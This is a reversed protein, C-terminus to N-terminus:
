RPCGAVSSMWGTIRNDYLLMWSAQLARWGIGKVEVGIPAGVPGKDALLKVTMDISFGTQTLLRDGQQLVIDHMFGFDDPAAFSATFHGAKDSKVIAVRFALPHFERGNYEGDAVKWDGRVTRWVLEFDQEPPLGQGTVTVPTGVPGHEPAAILRGVYGGAPEALTAEPGLEAAFPAAVACQASAIALVLWACALTLPWRRDLRRIM